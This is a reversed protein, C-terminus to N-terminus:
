AAAVAIIAIGDPEPISRDVSPAVLVVLPNRDPWRGRATDLYRQAQVLHSRTIRYPKCEILLVRRGQLVAIDVRDARSLSYELLIHVPEVGMGLLEDIVGAVVRAEPGCTKSRHSRWYIHCARGPKGVIHIYSVAALGRVGEAGM